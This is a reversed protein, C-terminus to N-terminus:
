TALTYTRLQRVYANALKSTPWNRKRHQALETGILRAWAPPAYREQAEHYPLNPIEMIWNIRIRKGKGLETWRIGEKSAYVGNDLLFGDRFLMLHESAAIVYLGTREPKRKLWQWLTPREHSNYTWFEDLYRYRISLAEFTQRIALANAGEWAACDSFILLMARIVELHLGTIGALVAPVCWVDHGVIKGFMRRAANM